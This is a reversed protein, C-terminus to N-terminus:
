GLDEAGPPIVADGWAEVRVRIRGPKRFLPDDRPVVEDDPGLEEPELALVLRGRRVLVRTEAIYDLSLVVM